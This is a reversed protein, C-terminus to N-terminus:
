CKKLFYRSHMCLHATLTYNDAQSHKGNEDLEHESDTFLEKSDPTLLFFFCTKLCCYLLGCGSTPVCM